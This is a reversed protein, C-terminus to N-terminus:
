KGFRRFSSIFQYYFFGICIRSFFSVMYTYGTIENEPAISAIKHAPNAIAFIYRKNRWTIDKFEDWNLGWEYSNFSVVNFGQFILLVILIGILSRTISIGHFNSIKNLALILKNNWFNSKFINKEELRFLYDLSVAKMKQAEFVNGRSEFSQKLELFLEYMDRNFAKKGKKKDPYHINSVSSFKNSDLLDKVSPFVTSYFKTNVFSSKHFVVFFDELRVSNFWTNDLISNNVEFKCEEDTVKGNISILSFNDRPSLNHLYVSNISCDEIIVDGIPKGSLSLARLPLNKINTKEHKFEPPYEISVSFNLLNKEKTTLIRKIKNYGGTNGYENYFVGKRLRLKKKKESNIESGYVNINEIRTFYFSTKESLVNKLEERNCWERPEINEERFSVTVNNLNEIFFVGFSNYFGISDLNKNKSIFHPCYCNYLSINSKKSILGVSSFSDIFCYHFCIKISENIGDDRSISVEKNFIVNDFFIAPANPLDVILRSSYNEFSEKSIILKVPVNYVKDKIDESSYNFIDIEIM